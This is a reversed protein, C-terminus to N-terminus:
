PLIAATTATRTAVYGSSLITTLAVVSSKLANLRHPPGALTEDSELLARTAPDFILTYTIPEGSASSDLSVAAGARGRPRSM